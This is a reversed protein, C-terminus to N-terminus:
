GAMHTHAFPALHARGYAVAAAVNGGEGIAEGSGGVLLRMFRLKHVRFELPPPAGDNAAVLAARHEEIWRALPELNHNQEIEAAVAHMESFPVKLASAAVSPCYTQLLNEKPKGPTVRAAAAADIARPGNSAGDLTSACYADGLEFRGRRFLHQAIAQGLANKDLPHDWRAQTPCGQTFVKDVAKGLKGM